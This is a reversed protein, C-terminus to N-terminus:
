MSSEKEKKGLLAALTKKGERGWDTGLGTLIFYKKLAFFIDIINIRMDWQVASYRVFQVSSPLKGRRFGIESVCVEFSPPKVKNM